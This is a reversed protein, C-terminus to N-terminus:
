VFRVKELYEGITTTSPGEGKGKAKVSASQKGQRIVATNWRYTDADKEPVEQPVPWSAIHIM